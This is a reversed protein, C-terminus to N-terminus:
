SKIYKTITKAGEIVKDLRVALGSSKVVLGSITNNNMNYAVEQLKNQFHATYIFAINVPMQLDSYIFTNNIVKINDAIEDFNTGVDINLGVDIFKNGVLISGLKSM